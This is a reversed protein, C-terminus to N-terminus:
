NLLDAEASHVQADSASVHAVATTVQSAAPRPDLIALLQGKKVAANYDAYLASVQGSVQSGIQVTRLAELTGTASITNSISARQVKATIYSSKSVRDRGLAWFSVVIILLVGSIGVIYTRKRATMM